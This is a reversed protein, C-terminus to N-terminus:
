RTVNFEDAWATFQLIAWLQHTARYVSIDAGDRKRNLGRHVLERLAAPRLLQRTLCERDSLLLEECLGRYKENQFMHMPISFGWKPHSFVEEPLWPRVAERLVYKTVGNKILLRDPLRTALDAMDVDLMPARVELSSAMSMRDVKVLMDEPLNFTTRYHMLQRLRSVGEDMEPLDPSVHHANCAPLAVGPQLLLDLEQQEFLPSTMTMRDLPSLTALNLAKRGQRLFGWRSLGPVASAARAVSSACKLASRPVRRSLADIKLHWLFYNYGGFLEDGGDGSLSVTAHSRIERSIFYTPIASTDFFPQGVHRVIRSLDDTEFGADTIVFEHHNTGLHEAVRRAIPSEDYQAYEFRATFTSVPKSSQRQMAAVVASSDIGGSLFAGLPVDSIMQRAVARQLTERVAEKAVEEDELAPDVSYNFRYYRKLQISSASCKLSHAPPLQRIGQYMTLPCPVMSLRLYCNLADTNVRRDIASWSVLSALESSFAFKRDHHWYYLPKEGFRDRALFLSKDRRDYICFAFMGKLLSPTEDGHDEYLHLIVETDSDTKFRHNGTEELSRRLERYNYIEGNFVIVLDGTENSIPQHGHDLDIIALRRMAISCAADDFQGHDDPGRHVLAANMAAVVQRHGGHEAYDIIGCIGCMISHTLGDGSITRVIM